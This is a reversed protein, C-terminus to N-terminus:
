SVLICGHIKGGLRFQNMDSFSHRWIFQLGEKQHQKLKCSIAKAVSVQREAGPNLILAESGTFANSRRRKRISRAPLFPSEDSSELRASAEQTLRYPEAALPNPEAESSARKAKAAAPSVEVLLPVVRKKAKAPKAKPNEPIKTSAPKVLASVGASPGLKEPLAGSVPAEKTTLKTPQKKALSKGAGSATGSSNSTEQKLQSLPEELKGGPEKAARPPKRGRQKEEREETRTARRDLKETVRQVPVSRSALLIDEQEKYAKIVQPDVRISPM